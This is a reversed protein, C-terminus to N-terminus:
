PHRHAERFFELDDLLLECLGASVSVAFLRASFDRFKIPGACEKAASTPGSPTPREEQYLSLLVSPRAEHSIAFPGGGYHSGTGTETASKVWILAEPDEKQIREQLREVHQQTRSAEAVLAKFPDLPEQGPDTAWLHLMKRAREEALRRQAAALHSLTAGGHLHCRTQGLMAKYTCTGGDRRKAGCLPQSM